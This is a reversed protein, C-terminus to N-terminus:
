ASALVIPRGKCGLLLSDKQSALAYGKSEYLSMTLRTQNACLFEVSQFCLTAKEMFIRCKSFLQTAKEM